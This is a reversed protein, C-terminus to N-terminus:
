IIIIVDDDESIVTLDTSLNYERQNEVYNLQKQQRSIKYKSQLESQVTSMLVMIEKNTYKPANRGTTIEANRLLLKFLDISEKYTM